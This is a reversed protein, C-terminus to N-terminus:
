QYELWRELGGAPLLKPAYVVHQLVCYQVGSSPCFIARFMNLQNSYWYISISADVQDEINNVDIIYPWVFM